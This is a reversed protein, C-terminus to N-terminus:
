SSNMLPPEARSPYRAISYSVGMLNLQNGQITSKPYHLKFAVKQENYLCDIVTEEVSSFRILRNHYCPGDVDDHVAWGVTPCVWHAEESDETCTLGRKLGPCAPREGRWRVLWTRGSLDPHRQNQGCFSLPPRGRRIGTLGPKGCGSTSWPKAAYALFLFPNYRLEFIPSIM